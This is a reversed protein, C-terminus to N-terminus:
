AYNGHGFDGGGGQVVGQEVGFQQLGAAGATLALLPGPIQRVIGVFGTLGQVAGRLFENVGSGSQIFASEFAGGLAELDGSLNDLKTAAM